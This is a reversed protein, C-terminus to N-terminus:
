LISHEYLTLAEELDVEVGIGDSTEQVFKLGLTRKLGVL